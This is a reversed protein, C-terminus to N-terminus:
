SFAPRLGVVVRLLWLFTGVFLTGFITQWQDGSVGIATHFNATVFVIFLPLLMGAPVRWARRSEEGMLLDNLEIRLKDETVVIMQQGLNLHVASQKFGEYLLDIESARASPKSISGQIGVAKRKMRLKHQARFLEIDVDSM